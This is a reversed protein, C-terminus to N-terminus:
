GAEPLVGIQRLSDDRRNPVGRSIRPLTREWVWNLPIRDHGKNKNSSRRIGFSAVAAGDHYVVYEDHELKDVIKLALEKIVQNGSRRPRAPDDGQPHWCTLSDVWRTAGPNLVTWMLQM